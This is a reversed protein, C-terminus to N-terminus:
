SSFLYRHSNRCSSSSPHHGSSPHLSSSDISCTRHLHLAVAAALALSHLPLTLSSINTFSGSTHRFIRLTLYPCSRSGLTFAGSTFWGCLALRLLLPRTPSAVPPTPGGCDVRTYARAAGQRGLFFFVVVVISLQYKFM